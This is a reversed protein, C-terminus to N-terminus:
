KIKQDRSLGEFESGTFCVDNKGGSLINLERAIAIATEKADGTIMIVNIGANKCSEISGKVEPRVPDKICVYGIFQCNSEFKSYDGSDSLKESSNEKTIHAM